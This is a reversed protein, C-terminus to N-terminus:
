LPYYSRRGRCTLLKVPASRVIRERADQDAFDPMPPAPFSNQPSGSAGRADTRGTRGVAPLSFGGTRLSSAPLPSPPVSSESALPLLPNLIVSPVM